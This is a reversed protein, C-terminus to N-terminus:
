HFNLFSQKPRQQLQERLQVVLRVELDVELELDLNTSAIEHDKQTTQSPPQSMPSSFSVHKSYITVTKPVIKSNRFAATVRGRELHEALLERHVQLTQRDVADQLLRLLQDPKLM